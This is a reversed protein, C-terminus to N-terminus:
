ASMPDRIRCRSPAGRTGTSDSPSGARSRLPIRKSLWKLLPTFTGKKWHNYTDLVIAVLFLALTVWITVLMAIRWYGKPQEVAVVIWAALTPVCAALQWRLRADRNGALLHYISFSAAVMTLIVMTLGLLGRGSPTAVYGASLAYLYGVLAVIAISLARTVIDRYFGEDKLWRRPVNWVSGKKRGKDPRPKISRVKMTPGNPRRVGGAVHRM